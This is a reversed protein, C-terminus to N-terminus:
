HKRKSGPKADASPPASPPVPAVAGILPGFGPDRVLKGILDQVGAMFAQATQNCATEGFFSSSFDYTEDVHVSKGNSSAVTLALVWGGSTSSFDVKDVTGTLTVPAAASYVEALTLDSIFAKRIYQSFPEGDPTKIPGVARCTISSAERGKAAFPGVNVQTGKATRLATVNEVSPSYRPVAYTSCGSVAFMAFTALLRPGM